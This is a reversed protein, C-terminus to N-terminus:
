GVGGQRTQLLTVRPMRCTRSGSSWRPTSLESGLHARASCASARHTTGRTLSRGRVRLASRARRPQPRALLSPGPAAPQEDPDWSERSPGSGFDLSDWSSRPDAEWTGLAARLGEYQPTGPTRRSMADRLIQQQVAGHEPGPRMMRVQVDSDASGAPVEATGDAAEPPVVGFNASRLAASPRMVARAAEAVIGRYLETLRAIAAAGARDALYEEIQGGESLKSLQAAIDKEVPFCVHGAPWSADRSDADAM